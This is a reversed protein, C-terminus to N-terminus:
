GPGADPCPECSADPLPPLFADTGADPADVPADVPADPAADVPADVPADIGADIPADPSMAADIGADIGADIPADIPMPADIPADIGADIPADIPMPADIPPDPPNVPADPPPPTVNTEQEFPPTGAPLPSEAAILYAAIGSVPRMQLDLVTQGAVRGVISGLNTAQVNSRMQTYFWYKRNNTSNLYLASRYTSRGSFAHTPMAAIRQPPTVAVTMRAQVNDLSAAAETTLEDTTLELATIPDGGWSPPLEIGGAVTGDGRALSFLAVETGDRTFFSLFKHQGPDETPRLTVWSANGLAMAGRFLFEFNQIPMGFSSRLDLAAERHLAVPAGSFFAFKFLLGGSQNAVVTPVNPNNRYEIRPITTVAQVLDDHLEFSEADTEPLRAFPAWSVFGMHKWIPADPNANPNANECLRLAFVPWQYWDVNRYVLTDVRQVEFMVEISNMYGDFVRGPFVVTDGLPLRAAGTGTRTVELDPGIAAASTGSSSLFAVGTVGATAHACPPLTQSAAYQLGYIQANNVTGAGTPDPAWPPIGPLGAVTGFSGINGNYNGSNGDWGGRPNGEEESGTDGCAGALLGLAMPVWVVLSLKRMSTSRNHM